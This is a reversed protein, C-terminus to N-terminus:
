RCAGRVVSSIHPQGVQYERALQYQSVGGAAYRARIEAVQVDSLKKARIRDWNDQNNQASTGALLHFPEVCLKVDCLHRVVPPWWGWREFFAVRHATRVKGKFSRMGYGNSSVARTWIKCPVM